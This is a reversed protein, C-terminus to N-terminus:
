WNKDKYIKVIMNAIALNIGSSDGRHIIHQAGNVRSKREDASGCIAVVEVFPYNGRVLDIEYMTRLIPDTRSTEIHSRSSGDMSYGAFWIKPQKVAFMKEVRTNNKVHAVSAELGKETMHKEVVAVDIDVFMNERICIDQGQYM